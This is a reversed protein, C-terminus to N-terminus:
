IAITSSSTESECPFEIIGSIVRTKPSHDASWQRAAEHWVKWFGDQTSAAKRRNEDDYSALSKGIFQLEVEVAADTMPLTTAGSPRLIKYSSKAFIFANSADPGSIFINGRVTCQLVNVLGHSKVFFKSESAQNQISV